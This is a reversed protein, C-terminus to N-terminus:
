TRPSARAWFVDTRYRVEVAEPDGPSAHEDFVKAVAGEVSSRDDQSIKSMYSMSMVLALLSTRDVVHSQCFKAEHLPGFPGDSTFVNRWGSGRYTPSGKRYHAFIEELDLQLPTSLDRVNWILGMRGGPRLVRAIEDLAEIGAFWHFAQAITVADVSDDPLPVSAGHGDLVVITPLNRALENRMSPEPEVAVVPGVMPVLEKTFKGTGAALDLVTDDSGVGLKHILHEVAPRSYDPRGQEYAAADYSVQSM